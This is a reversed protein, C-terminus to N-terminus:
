IERRREVRISGDGLFKGLEKATEVDYLSLDEGLRRQLMERMNRIEREMQLCMTILVDVEANTLVVERKGETM